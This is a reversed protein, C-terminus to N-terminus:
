DELRATVWSGTPGDFYEAGKYSVPGSPSPALPGVLSPAPAGESPLLVANDEVATFRNTVLPVLPNSRPIEAVGYSHLALEFNIAEMMADVNTALEHNRQRAATLEKFLARMDDNTKPM